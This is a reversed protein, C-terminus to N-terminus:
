GEESGKASGGVSIFEGEPLLLWFYCSPRIKDVPTWKSEMSSVGPYLNLFDNNKKAISSNKRDPLFKPM